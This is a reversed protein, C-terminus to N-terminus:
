TILVRFLAFVSFLIFKHRLGLIPGVLYCVNYSDVWCLIWLMTNSWLSVHPLQLLAVVYLLYTVKHKVCSQGKCKYMTFNVDVM